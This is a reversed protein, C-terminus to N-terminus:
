PLDEEPVIETLLVERGQEELSLRAAAVIAIQEFTEECAFPARGTRAFSVFVELQRKFATFTDSFKAWSSGKDGIAQYTGFGGYCDYIAWLVAEAGSVHKLLVTHRDTQGADRVSVFGPGMLQYLGELAHIGYRAWTKCTLGTAVCLRGIAAKKLEEIEVAYRMCSTSLIPKGERYWRIFQHLDDKNDTLPKDIFTPIGAEIFPRARHIHEYGIDTAICVADVQGIVDEPKEVVNPVFSAKSVKAAEKPNDTWVHTVKAGPIGLKERNAALYQPIVPYGCDAMEQADFDGNVIASWSYPHGNGEVMGLMAIRIDTKSV